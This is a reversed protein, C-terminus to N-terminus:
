PMVLPVPSAQFSSQLEQLHVLRPTLTQVRTSQEEELLLLLLVSGARNERVGEVSMDVEGRHVWGPTVFQLLTDRLGERSEVLSEMCVPAEKRRVESEDTERVRLLDGVLVVVEVEKTKEVESWPSATTVALVIGSLGERAETNAEM